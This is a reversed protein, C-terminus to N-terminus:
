PAKARPLFAYGLWAPGHAILDIGLLLGVVWLGTKPFEALVVLGAVIGFAGSLLMVWGAEQRRSLGLLIRVLGSLLLLLGLGYTVLLEGSGTSRTLVYTLVMVSSGAVGVLILGLAIYLLGLLMQWGLGGWGRTWVAHVIEFTGVVIASGGLFVSSIISALAVDALVAAGALIMVAGLLVRVWGPPRAPGGTTTISATDHVAM